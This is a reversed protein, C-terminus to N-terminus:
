IQTKFINKKAQEARVRTNRIEYVIRRIACIKQPELGWVIDESEDGTQMGSTYKRGLPLTELTEIFNSHNILMAIEAQIFLSHDISLFKPKQSLIM